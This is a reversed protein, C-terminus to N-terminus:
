LLCVPACWSLWTTLHYVAPCDHPRTTCLLVALSEPYYVTNCGPALYYLAPCCHPWTTCWSLWPARNVAPCRLSACKKRFILLINIIKSLWSIIRLNKKYDVLLLFRISNYLNHLKQQINKYRYLLVIIDIIFRLPYLRFFASIGLSLPSGVLMFSPFIPPPYIKKIILWICTILLVKNFRNTPLQHVIFNEVM